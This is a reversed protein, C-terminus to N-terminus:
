NPNPPPNPMTFHAGFSLLDEESNVNDSNIKVIRTVTKSFVMRKLGPTAMTIGPSTRWFDAVTSRFVPGRLRLSDFQLKVNIDCYLINPSSKTFYFYTIVVKKGRYKKLNGQTSM